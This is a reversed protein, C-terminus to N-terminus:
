VGQCYQDILQQHQQRKSSIEQDNLYVREGNANTEFIRGGITLNAFNARLSQCRNALEQNQLAKNQQELDAIRQAEPTPAPAPTAPQQALQGADATRGDSRMELIQFNQTDKPQMQSYRVEGHKGVSKYIKTTNANATIGFAVISLLATLTHIKM